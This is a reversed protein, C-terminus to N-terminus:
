CDDSTPDIRATEAIMVQLSTNKIGSNTSSCLLFTKWWCIIFM